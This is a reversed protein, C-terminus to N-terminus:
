EAKLSEVINTAAARAAPVFAAGVGALVLVAGAAALAAVGPMQMQGIFRATLQLLFYGGVLGTAIGAGAMVAGHGIVGALINSPTAGLAMRIGFERTRGSVSFALVGAVGVVAIALAVVAFLSFVAANLRDPSIVEARIESLTAGGVVPQDNALEHITQTVAPIIAHPGNRVHIFVRGGFVQQEFPQYVTPLAGPIVHEDDIDPVIGVIRRPEQSVGIFKMIPDTWYLKRNLVDREPGLKAAVSASVIVVREAGDRDDTTFDRGADIPVGLTAFYAPSVSRMRARPDENAAGSVGGELRYGFGARDLVEDRRWPISSGIAVQEVEPLEGLRAQLRRYFNRVDEPTRGYSTVPVNLALIKTTDFGPSSAQLALFTRVLAIAGVVLIFCAGIQIVAFVNLKSAGAAVRASGSALKLGGNRADSPLSPVFALLVAALLALVVGLSLMVPDITVELARVSFRAAYRSLMAALPWALAAGALAGLGCLVTSEALLLRRLAMPHAGLAAMVALESERRVTRALILNAVNSCAIVFILLAAAFLVLLVTRANTTLQERLPVTRITYAAQAPYAESYDRRISEYAGTIESRAADVSSDPALRAFVETMRHERGQVMTASLHHPSTVMNALMETEAPYPVSPELVGVIVAPRSGFTTDIRVTKGIIGTDRQFASSWFAYTLVAAGAASAGDDSATLLRGLVPRLGMVEFYNGSVVGARVQRPEGLGIVSFPITSFEGIDSLSRVRERLDKIEPVSFTANERGIGPASQRIYVIRDEGRNVLPRLLVARVLGFIAINVGIGLALTLIIAISLGKMNAISRFAFALEQVFTM